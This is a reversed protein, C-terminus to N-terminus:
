KADIGFAFGGSGGAARVVYEGPRLLPPTLRYSLKGHKEMRLPVAGPTQEKVSSTAWVGLPAQRLDGQADLRYMRSVWDGPPLSSYAILLPPLRGEAFRLQARNGRFEATRQEGKGRLKVVEYPVPKLLRAAEDWYFLQAYAPPEPIEAQGQALSLTRWLLCVAALKMVGSQVRRGGSM